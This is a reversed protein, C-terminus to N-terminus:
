KETFSFGGGGFYKMCITKWEDPTYNFKARNVCWPLIQLNEFDWTGGKSLPTIHDLSPRAYSPKGSHVWDDYIYNYQPDNYFKIIFAKDKENDFHIKVRDRYLLHNLEKVKEVDDFELFFRWEVNWLLHGAMNKYLQEKSARRGQQALSIKKRTEESIIHTKGKNAKSIKERHELTLIRKKRNKTNQEIHQNALIRKIMHHNTNFYKAIERLSLGEKEYMDAIQKMGDLCNM